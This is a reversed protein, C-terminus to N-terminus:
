SRQWQQDAEEYGPDGPVLIKAGGDVTVMAPRIRTIGRAPQAAAWAIMGAVEGFGALDALTRTTPFPMKLDDQTARACADAPRLWRTETIERGDCDAAQGPPLGAIFFRTQWRKPQIKPTEWCAFYNLADCAM